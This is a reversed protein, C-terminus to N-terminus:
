KDSNVGTIGKPIKHGHFEPSPEAGPIATEVATANGFHELVNAPLNLIEGVDKGFRGGVGGWQGTKVIKPNKPKDKRRFEIDGTFSIIETEDLLSNYTAMFETGRIGMVASKTTVVVPKDKNIKGVVWRSAGELLKFSGPIKTSSAFEIASNEKLITITRAEKSFVKATSDASTKLVGQGVLNERVKVPKDNFTVTGTLTIIQFGNDNALTSQSSFSVVSFCLGAVAQKVASTRM